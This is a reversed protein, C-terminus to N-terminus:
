SPKNRPSRKTTRKEGASAAAQGTARKTRAARQELEESVQVLVSQKLEEDQEFVEPLSGEFPNGLLYLEGSEMKAPSPREQRQPEEPQEVQAETERDPLDPPAFLDFVDRQVDFPNAELSVEAASSPTAPSVVEQEPSSAVPKDEPSLQAPRFFGLEHLVSSFRAQDQEGEQERFPNKAAAKEETAPAGGAGTRQAQEGSQQPQAAPTVPRVPPPSPIEGTYQYFPSLPVDRQQAASVAQTSGQKQLPQVGRPKASRDASGPEEFPNELVPDALSPTTQGFPRVLVEGNRTPAANRQAQVPSSFPSAAYQVRASAPAQAAPQRSVPARAVPEPLPALPVPTNEARWAALLAYGERIALQLLLWWGAALLLAQITLLVFSLLFQGRWQGWLQSFQACAQFFIQWTRPYIGGSLWVMLCVAVVIPLCRTLVQERLSHTSYGPHKPPMKM